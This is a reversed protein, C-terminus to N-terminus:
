IKFLILLLSQYNEIVGSLSELTSYHYITASPGAIVSTHKQKYRIFNFLKKFYFTPINYSYLGISHTNPGFVTM